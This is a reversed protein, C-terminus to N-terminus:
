AKKEELELISFHLSYNPHHKTSWLVNKIYVPFHSRQVNGALPLVLLHSQLNYHSCPTNAECHVEDAVEDKVKWIAMRNFIFCM